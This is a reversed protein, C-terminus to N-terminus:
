RVVVSPAEATEDVTEGLATPEVIDGVVLEAGCDVEAGCGVETGFGTTLEVLGAVVTTGAAVVGSPAGGVVNTDESVV